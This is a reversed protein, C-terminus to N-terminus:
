SRHPRWASAASVNSGKRAASRASTASRAEAGERAAREEGAARASEGARSESAAARAEAAELRAELDRLKEKAAADGAAAHESVASAATSAVAAAAAAVRAANAESEAAEARAEAREARASAAATEAVNAAHADTMRSLQQELARERESRTGHHHDAAFARDSGDRTAITTEHRARVAMPGDPFRADPSHQNTANVRTGDISPTAAQPSDVAHMQVVQAGDERAAGGVPSGGSLLDDLGITPGAPSDPPANGDRREDGPPRKKKLLTMEQTMAAAAAAKKSSYDAAKKSMDAARKSADAAAQKAAQFYSSMAGGSRDGRTVARLSEPFSIALNELRSIPDITLFWPM